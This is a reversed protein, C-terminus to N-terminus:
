MWILPHVLFLVHVIKAKSGIINTQIDTGKENYQPYIKSHRKAKKKESEWTFTAGPYVFSEIQELLKGHVETECKLIQTSKIAASGCERPTAAIRRIRCYISNDDAYRLNNIVNGGVRFGDLVEINRM